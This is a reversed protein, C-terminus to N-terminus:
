ARGRAESFLYQGRQGSKKVMGKDGLRSLLSSVVYSKTPRVSSLIEAIETSKLPRDSVKITQMILEELTKTPGTHAPLGLSPATLAAIMGDIQRLRIALRERASRLEAVTSAVTKEFGLLEDM